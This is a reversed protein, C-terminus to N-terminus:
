LTLARTALPPLPLAPRRHLPAPPHADTIEPPPIRVTVEPELAASVVHDLARAVTDSWELNLAGDQIVGRHGLGRRHANVIRKPSLDDLSEYHQTDPVRRRRLKAVLDDLEHLPAKSAM